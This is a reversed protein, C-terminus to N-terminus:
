FTSKKLIPVFNPRFHGFFASLNFSCMCISVSITWDITWDSVDCTRRLRCTPKGVLELGRGDNQLRALNCLLLVACSLLHVAYCCLQVAYYCLQVAYRFYLIPFQFQQEFFLSVFSCFQFRLLPSLWRLLFVFYLLLLSFEIICYGM